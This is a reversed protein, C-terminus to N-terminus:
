PRVAELRNPDLARRAEYRGYLAGLWGALRIRLQGMM